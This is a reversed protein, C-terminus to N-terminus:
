SCASCVGPRTWLRRTSYRGSIGPSRYACTWARCTTVPMRSCTSSAASRRAAKLGAHDNAVFLEIGHLGRDKLETLFQRWHVEAESLAVSIGLIDRKGDARVGLAVLVACDVVQGGQRVKEYRADLVVYPYAGLTRRRWASLEEDLMQTCRSVQTSSVEFGCLEETIKAVKRTSVGQIVMEALALKLARESRLGRELASPYFSGDRVQPVAFTLEGLRSKMTKPKFGNAYGQRNQSREWADAGLHRSREIRMAENLLMRFADAFGDFGEQMILEVAAGMANNQKERAMTDEKKSNDQDIVVLPYAIARV